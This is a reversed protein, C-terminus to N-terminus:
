RASRKVRMPDWFPIHGMLDYVGVKWTREVSQNLRRRGPREGICFSQQAVEGKAIAMANMFRPGDAIRRWSSGSTKRQRRLVVRHMEM